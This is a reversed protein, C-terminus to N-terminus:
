MRSWWMTVSLIPMKCMYSTAERTPVRHAFYFDPLEEIYRREVTYKYEIISGQQVDPMEFELIRYRTNLDVTGTDRRDLRSQTGDPQHTVAELNVIREIDDAFYFPIGVM